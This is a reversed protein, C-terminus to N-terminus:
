AEAPRSTFPSWAHQDQGLRGGLGDLGDGRGRLGGAPRAQPDYGGCGFRFVRARQLDCGRTTRTLVVLDDLCGTCANKKLRLGSGVKIVLHEVRLEILLALGLEDQACLVGALDLVRRWRGAPPAGVGSARRGPSSAAGIASGAGSANPTDPPVEGQGAGLANSRVPAWRSSRIRVRRSFMFSLDEWRCWHRARGVTM